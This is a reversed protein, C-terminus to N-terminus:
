TVNAKSDCLWIWDFCESRERTAVNWPKDYSTSVSTNIGNMVMSM